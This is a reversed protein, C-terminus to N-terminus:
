KGIFHDYCGIGMLYSIADLISQRFVDYVLLEKGMGRWQAGQGTFIFALSLDPASRAITPRSVQLAGFDDLPHMVAFSRWSLLSRREILTYALSITLNNQKQKSTTVKEDFRQKYNSVLTNLTTEDSASWTLVKMSTTDNLVRSVNESPASIQSTDPPVTATIHRGKINRQRM